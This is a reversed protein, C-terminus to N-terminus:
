STTYIHTPRLLHLRLIHTHHLRITEPKGCLYHIHCVTIQILVRTSTILTIQNPHTLPHCIFNIMTFDLECQGVKKLTKLFLKTKILNLKM